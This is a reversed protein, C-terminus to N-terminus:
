GAETTASASWTSLLKSHCRKTARLLTSYSDCRYRFTLFRSNMSSTLAWRDLIVGKCFFRMSCLLGLLWSKLCRLIRARNLSIRTMWLHIRTAASWILSLGLRHSMPWRSEMRCSRAQSTLQLIRPWGCGLRLTHKSVLCERNKSWRNASKTSADWGRHTSTAIKYCSGLGM